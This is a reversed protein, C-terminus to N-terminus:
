ATALEQIKEVADWEYRLEGSETIGVTVTRHEESTAMCRLLQRSIEPLLTNSLLNDVSRAGSEVELCRQRVLEILEDGYTLALGHNQQMQRQIRGLKLRTIADLVEDQVPFYPVVLTRGLFAPKFIHNLEPRIAAVVEASDLTGDSELAMRTIRDSTVNSTMLILTNRFNIRRGEGDEMTGKDFVQFFLELVDPHAKEIEDLLLVSYPQRRIAETLRGGVGYGVYGPPSGKLTSVTHAEQFESMNITILNREGGYLLDALVLATETKGVGSPGVLLFVGVPKSPDDLNARSTQVRQAIAALAADQGIVRKRLADELTLIKEIEDELMTGLPVGTWESIVEGIMEGDVAPHTLPTRQQVEKLRERLDVLQRFHEARVSAESGDETKASTGEEEELLARLQRMQEVMTKEDDWRQQLEGLDLKAQKLKSGIEILREGHMAGSRQERKLVRGQTELSQVDRSIVEMAPPVSSQSLAVRACATDLVSIAKDPLQRGPLYRHSLRVAASLAEDLVRVGHHEELSSLVGRLMTECQAESPEEVRIVQFRRALAADKEFYQKYESWTTAAITRLEGRALAPKLINAADGQGAQAGAGVITHAEDLFLIVPHPSSKIEKVLGKLRNEYEGKVSAGAQLLALDLSHLRVQRLAPPVDGTVVRLALGEVVATKGVGAEGTLIPNNQRRRMLVDIVQRIEVDRGIVPDIRGERADKTLDTTYQDLFVTSTRVTSGPSADTALLATDAIDLPYVRAESSGEVIKPLNRRLEEVSIGALERSVDHIQRALSEESLTALLAHGTRVESAGYNLSGLTWAETLMKVLAPSLAPGRANGTKLRDLSARLSAIVREPRLRFHSLILYLDANEVEIAKLLFHEIEVEYNTRSVCLAAASEMATRVAPNFKEILAKLDLIM